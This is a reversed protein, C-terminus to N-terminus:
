FLALAPDAPEALAGELELLTRKRDLGGAYGTLKGGAGLVRHCPVIISLPNHGVAGGVRRALTVNGLERAIEGYTTTEGYPTRTLIAWVSRQFPDGAATTPLDFTTRDGALYEGLQRAAEEFGSDDRPGFLTRDPRTWHGPFYIGSLMGGDAVLTLEGLTTAITTHTANM